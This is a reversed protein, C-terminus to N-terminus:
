GCYGGAGDPAAYFCIDSRVSSSFMISPSEVFIEGRVPSPWNGRRVWLALPSACELVSRTRRANPAARWRRPTRRGEAAKEKGLPNFDRPPRGCPSKTGASGPETQVQSGHNFGHALKLPWAMRCGDARHRKKYLWAPPLGLFVRKQRKRATKALFHSKGIIKRNRGIMQRVRIIIRRVRLITRRVRFIMRRVRVIMRRFRLIM